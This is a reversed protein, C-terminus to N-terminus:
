TLNGTENEILFPLMQFDERHVVDAIRHVVDTIKVLLRAGQFAGIDISFCVRIVKYYKAFSSVIRMMASLNSEAFLEIWLETIFM